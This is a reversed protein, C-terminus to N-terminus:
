LLIYLWSSSPVLCRFLGASVSFGTNTHRFRDLHESCSNSVRIFSTLIEKRTEPNAKFFIMKKELKLAASVVSCGTMKNKDEGCKLVRDTQVTNCSSM